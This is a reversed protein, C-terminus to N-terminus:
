YNYLFVALDFLEDLAIIYDDFEVGGSTIFWVTGESMSGQVATVKQNGSDIKLAPDDSSIYLYVIDQDDDERHSALINHITQHCFQFLRQELDEIVGTDVGEEYEDLSRETLLMAQYVEEASVSDKGLLAATDSYDIDEDAVVDAFDHVCNGAIQHDYIPKGAECWGIGEAELADKAEVELEVHTTYYLTVKFKMNPNESKGPSHGPNSCRSNEQVISESRRLWYANDRKIQPAKPQPHLTNQITGKACGFMRALDRQSYGQSSLIVM